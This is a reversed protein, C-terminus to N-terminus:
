SIWPNEEKARKYAAWWNMGTQISDWLINFKKPRFVQWIYIANLLEHTPAYEAAKDFIKQEQYEKDSFNEWHSM